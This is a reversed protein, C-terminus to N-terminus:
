AARARARAALEGVADIIERWVGPPLDHGMGEVIVLKAEPIAAATARGGEVRVLPDADGHIVLSPVRVSRLAATRDGSAMIAAMQRAVGAPHYGRDFAREFLARMHEEDPPFKPSGIVKWAELAQAVNGERDPPPPALLVRMAEPTAPPLTVDGTTSMISTMSLLRDPYRIALTQAIMGGMSAGVVHARAIGLVDMLAATDDAMDELRYPARVPKGAFAAQMAEFVNPTGLADLQTSLGVDRNDFRVVHFGAAALEACFDEEWLIMQAGLGMILVLPPNTPDGFADYELEIGNALRARPM